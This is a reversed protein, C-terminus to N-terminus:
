LNEEQKRWIEAGKGASRGEVLACKETRPLRKFHWERSRAEHESFYGEYYVLEVPLRSRTYKAGKGANHAAERKQPNDTFGAYLSGDACRVFYAYYMKKERLAIKYSDYNYCVAAFNVLLTGTNWIVQALCVM